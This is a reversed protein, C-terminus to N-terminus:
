EIIIKRLNAPVAGTFVTVTPVPLYNQMREYCMGAWKAILRPIMTKGM